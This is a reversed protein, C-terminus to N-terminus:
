KHYPLGVNKRISQIYDIYITSDSEYNNIGTQIFLHIEDLLKEFALKREIEDEFYNDIENKLSDFPEKSLYYGFELTSLVNSDQSPLFSLPTFENENKRRKIFFYLIFISLVLGIFLLNNM